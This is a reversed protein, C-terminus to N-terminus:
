EKKKKKKEDEGQGGVVRREDLGDVGKGWAGAKKGWRMMGWAHIWGFKPPPESHVRFPSAGHRFLGKEDDNDHKGERQAENKEAQPTAVATDKEERIDEGEWTRIEKPVPRWWTEANEAERTAWWRASCIEWLRSRARKYAFREDEGTFAVTRSFDIIRGIENGAGPQGDSSSKEPQQHQEHYRAHPVHHSHPPQGFDSDEDTLISRPTSLPAYSPPSASPHYASATNPRFPSTQDQYIEAFTESHMAETTLDSDPGNIQSANNKAEPFFITDPGAAARMLLKCRAEYLADLLTILRRAENKHLLTLVPVETLILTHFTSAISIYDAPGLNSCCLEAFTWYTVGRHHRPVHLTRGYIRLSTPTWSVEAASSSSSLPSNSAAAHLAAAWAPDADTMADELDPSQNRVFYYSPLSDQLTNTETSENKNMHESQKYGLGGDGLALSELGDSGERDDTAANALQKTQRSFVSDERERRRWDKSGEMDWVECRARLVDLFLAFDGKQSSINESRGGNIGAGILGWRNKLSGLRSSPPAAFEIGSANALEEPMRNSTAILVGGLHFFPTLLNTLIKSAARDPLQFEDLFLIPSTSILDRAICLLSHEEDKGREDNKTSFTNSRKRRLQELRAFIELMLNNFHCRRKKQAPLCDSLLDILMSKGTGVDGYLLLGQPSQISMASEHSTLQKTIALTDRDVKPARFSSFIGNPKGDARSIATSDPVTSSSSPKGLAQNIQNLRHNYDVEPSYSKLRNYVKQLHLALRHQAPDPEIQKTALLTRYLVLPNTITLGLAPSPPPM